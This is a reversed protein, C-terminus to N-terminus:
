AKGGSQMRKAAAVADGSMKKFTELINSMFDADFMPKLDEWSAFDAQRFKYAQEFLGVEVKVIYKESWSFVTIKCVPHEIYGAIRM